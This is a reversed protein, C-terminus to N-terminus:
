HTEKKTSSVLLLHGANIHNIFFTNQFFVSHHTKVFVTGGLVFLIDTISIPVALGCQIEPESALGSIRFNHTLTLLIIITVTIM